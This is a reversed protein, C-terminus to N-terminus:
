REVIWRRYGYRTAITEHAGHRVVAIKIIGEHALHYTRAAILMAGRLTRARTLFWPDLGGTIYYIM